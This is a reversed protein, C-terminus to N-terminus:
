SPWHHHSPTATSLSYRISHRSSRNRAGCDSYLYAIMYLMHYCDRVAVDRILTTDNSFGLYEGLTQTTNWTENEFKCEAPVNITATDVFDLVYLRRLTYFAAIYVWVFRSLTRHCRSMLCSLVALVVVGFNMACYHNVCVLCMNHSLLMRDLNSVCGDHRRLADASTYAARGAEM